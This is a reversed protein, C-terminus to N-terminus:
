ATSADADADADTDAAAADDADDAAEEDAEAAAAEEAAKAAAEAAAKAEAAEKAATQQAEIEDCESHKAWQCDFYELADCMEAGGEEKAGGCEPAIGCCQELQFDIAKSHCQYVMADHVQGDVACGGCKKWTDAPDAFYACPEVCDADCVNVMDAAILLEPTEDPRPEACLKSFTKLLAPHCGHTTMHEPDKCFVDLVYDCCDNPVTGSDGINLNPDEFTAGECSEHQCPSNALAEDWPCNHFEDELECTSQELELPGSCFKQYTMTPDALSVYEFTGMKKDTRKELDEDAAHRVSGLDTELLLSGLFYGFRAIEPPSSTKPTYTIVLPLTSMTNEGSWHPFMYLGVAPSPYPEDEYQIANTFALWDLEWDDSAEGQMVPEMLTKEKNFRVVVWRLGYYTQNLLQMAKEDVGKMLAFSDKQSNADVASEARQNSLSSATMVAAVGLALLAAAAVVTRRSSRRPAVDTALTGYTSAM